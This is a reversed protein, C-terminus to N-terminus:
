YIEITYVGNESIDVIDLNIKGRFGKQFNEILTITQKEGNYDHYFLMLSDQDESEKYKITTVYTDNPEINPISEPTTANPFYLFFDTTLEGSNNEFSVEIQTTKTNLLIVIGTILAILAIIRLVNKM